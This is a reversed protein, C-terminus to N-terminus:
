ARQLAEDRFLSCSHEPRESQYKRVHSNPVPLFPVPELSSLTHREEEKSIDTLFFQNDMSTMACPNCDTM